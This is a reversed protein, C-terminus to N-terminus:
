VPGRVSFHTARWPANSSRSIFDSCLPLAQAYVACRRLHLGANALWRPCTTWLSHDERGPSQIAIPEVRLKAIPCRKGISELKRGMVVVHGTTMQKFWQFGGAFAVSPGAGIVRNLSMAAIAQLRSM